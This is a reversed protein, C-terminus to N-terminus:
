NLAMSFVTSPKASEEIPFCKIVKEELDPFYITADQRNDRDTLHHTSSQQDQCYMKIPVTFNGYSANLCVIQYNTMHSTIKITLNKEFVDPDYKIKEKTFLNIISSEKEDNSIDNTGM